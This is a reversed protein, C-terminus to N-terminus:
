KTLHSVRETIHDPKKSPQDHIAILYVLSEDALIKRIMHRSVQILVCLWLDVAHGTGLM